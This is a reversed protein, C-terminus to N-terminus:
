SGEFAANLNRLFEDATTRGDVRYVYTQGPGNLRTGALYIYRYGAQLLLSELEPSSRGFPLAFDIPEVGLRRLELSMLEIDAWVRALYEEQTEYREEWGLWQPCTTFYAPEGDPGSPILRHGDHTHGGFGWLGSEIMARAQAVTLHPAAPEPRPYPSFWKTVPFMVAPCNLAELVPHGYLYVGEYGDDFTLLVPRPPLRKRGEMYSHFDNLSIFTYGAERARVIMNELAAASVVYPSTPKEQSSVDHLVVVAVGPATGGSATLGYIVAGGLLAVAVILSAAKFM